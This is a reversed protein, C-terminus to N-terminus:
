RPKNLSDAENRCVYDEAALLLPAWKLYQERSRPDAYFQKYDGKKYASVNLLENFPVTISFTKNKGFESLVWKFTAKKARLMLNDATAVKDPGPNFHPKYFNTEGLHERYRSRSRRDNEKDTEKRIWASYQGIFVSDETILANCRQRYEEFSPTEGFTLVNEADYVLKVMREFGAHTRLPLNEHPAFVPSRDLLGQLLMAVRNFEKAKKEISAMVEDYYHNDQDVPKFDRMTDKLRSLEYDHPNSRSWIFSNTDEKNYGNKLKWEDWPNDFFWQNYLLEAAAAKEKVYELERVPMLSEVNGCFMKAAMPENFIQTTSPFLMEGFEIASSVRYVRDGNRIYIFTLKDSNNLQFNIYKEYFTGDSLREKKNRRVKFTVLSRQYPLLRNLNHPRILWADFQSIDKFEMGGADYDLLSEEDMYLQRQFVHIKDTLSGPSGGQLEICEETLGAYIDVNLIRDEIKSLLTTQEGMLAKMQLIEASMWKAMIGNFKKVEEFLQPLATEKAQVLAARYEKPADLSTMTSLERSQSSAAVTPDHELAPAVGLNTTIRKIESLAQACDNRAANIISSIELEHNVVRIAETPMDKFLVRWTTYGGRSGEPTQFGVYNSGISTVCALYPFGEPANAYECPMLSSEHRSGALWFWQGLQVDSDKHMVDILAAHQGVNKDSM